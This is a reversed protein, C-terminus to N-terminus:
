TYVFDTRRHACQGVLCERTGGSGRQNFAVGNPQELVCCFVIWCPEVGDASGPTVNVELSVYNMLVFGTPLKSFRQSIFGALTHFNTENVIPHAPKALTRAREPIMQTRLPHLYTAVVGRLKIRRESPHMAIM